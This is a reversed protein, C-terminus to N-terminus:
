VDSGFNLGSDDEDSYSLENVWDEISSKISEETPQALLNLNEGTLKTVPLEPLKRPLHREVDGITAKTPIEYITSHYFSDCTSAKSQCSGEWLNSDCGVDRRNEERGEFTTNSHKREIKPDSQILVYPYVTKYVHSRTVKEEVHYMIRGRKFLKDDRSILIHKGKKCYSFM